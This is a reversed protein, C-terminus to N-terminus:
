SAEVQALDRGQKEIELTYKDKKENSIHQSINKEKSTGGINLCDDFDLTNRLFKKVDFTPNQMEKLILAFKLDEEEIERKKKLEEPDQAIEMM